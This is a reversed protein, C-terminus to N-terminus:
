GNAIVEKIKSVINEGYITWNASSEVRDRALKAQEVFMHDNISLKELYGVLAKIDDREILWGGNGHIVANPIGGQDSGITPVGSAQAELFVLGFGEVAKESKEERTCLIFLDSQKYLSPLDSEEVFGLFTVSKDLGYQKVLAKLADLYNGRGAIAYHLNNLKEKPLQALAQIIVDHAKYKNVRSTTLIIKKDKPLGFQSRLNFKEVQSTAPSFRKEDVGLPIMVTPSSVQSEVINNTYDSNSIVLKTTGLVWKRLRNLITNKLGGEGQMVDNGHALTIVNKLGALRCLTAEPHWVDTIVWEDKPLSKLIKLIELERKGREATVRVESDVNPLAYGSIPLDAKVTIVNVIFGNSKLAEVIAVCLRSIGGELPPYDYTLLTVKNM